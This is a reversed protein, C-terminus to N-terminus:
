ENKGYPVWRDTAEDYINLPEVGWTHKTFRVKAIIRNKEKEINDIRDLSLGDQIDWRKWEGTMTNLRLVGYGNTGLWIYQNDKLAAFVSNTTVGSYGKYQEKPAKKLTSAIKKVDLLENSDNELNILYAKFDAEINIDFKPKLVSEKADVKDQNRKVNTETEIEGKSIHKSVPSMDCSCILVLCFFLLLFTTNKLEKLMNNVVCM